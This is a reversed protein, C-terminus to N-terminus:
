PDAGTGHREGITWMINAHSVMAGKPPGTTGSTYVLTALDGPSVADARAAFLGPERALRAAGIARLQAFGLVFPDDLRDDNDFVVIRDLKPLDDRVELIRGALDHDEVFCVVAEAHGLIHAVQEPSSTQYIPVTVSGNALTGLDALHWEARNNSFIGVRQGAGIGLEALGATVESVAHGYDAWTM